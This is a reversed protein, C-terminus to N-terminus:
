MAEAQQALKRWEQRWNAGFKKTLYSQRDKSSMRMLSELSNGAVAPGSKGASLTDSVGGRSASQLSDMTEQAEASPRRRQPAPAAPQHGNGGAYLHMNILAHLVAAPNKGLSIALESMEVVLKKAADRAIETPVGLAQEYFHVVAGDAPPIGRAQDGSHGIFANYDRQYTAGEPTATYDAEAANALEQRDSLFAQVQAQRQMREQHQSQTEGAMRAQDLVPQLMPQLQAMLRKETQRQQWDFFPQPNYVDYEPAVDEEGTQKEPLTMLSTFLQTLQQNQQRTQELEERYRNETKAAERKALLRAYGAPLQKEPKPAPTERVALSEEKPVGLRRELSAAAHQVEPSDLVEQPVSPTEAPPSGESETTVLATTEETM